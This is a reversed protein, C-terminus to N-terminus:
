NRSWHILYIQKFYTTEIKQLQNQDIYDAVTWRKLNGIGRSLKEDFIHKMQLPWEKVLIEDLEQM